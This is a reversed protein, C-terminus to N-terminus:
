LDLADMDHHSNHGDLILLAPGETKHALLHRIVDCFTITTFSGNKQFALISGLLCSISNFMLSKKMNKGEHTDDHKTGAPSGELMNHVLNKGAFVYMPPLSVGNANCIHMISMHTTLKSDLLPVRRDGLAFYMFDPTLINNNVHIHM